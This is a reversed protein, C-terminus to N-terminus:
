IARFESDLYLIELVESSEKRGRRLWCRSREKSNQNRDGNILKAQEQVEHLYSKTKQTKPKFPAQLIM